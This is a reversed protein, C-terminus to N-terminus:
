SLLVEGTDAVRGDPFVLQWSSGVKWDTESHM